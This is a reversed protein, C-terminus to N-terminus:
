KFSFLHLSPSNKLRVKLTLAKLLKDSDFNDLDPFTCWGDGMYVIVKDNNGSAATSSSSSSSGSYNTNSESLTEMDVVLQSSSPQSVLQYNPPQQQQQHQQELPAYLHCQNYNAAGSASENEMMLFNM